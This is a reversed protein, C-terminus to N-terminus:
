ESDKKMLEAFPNNSFTKTKAAPAPAFSQRPKGGQKRRPKKPSRTQQPQRSKPKNQGDKLLSLSIRQRELEVDVVSVEVVQGVKVHESPAANRAIPMKSRHVLGDQHVGVDVFAGFDTVNTVIGPLKMGKKLDEIKEVGETFSFPVFSERPDRGPKALEEIIDQLTPLGVEENIYNNLNISKRKEEDQMLTNVDAQADEAMQLVLKYREPHVASSDLPNEAGRIRIFGAAQEFAKPGFRQVNLLEQRSKFPGKEKRHEVVNKALVPGLGSIYRLLEASATNVDVGVKNVCSVVVDDLSQRLKSQDVDHQYQGVGISKPDIKVLEALPDMFRRGISVAGRYSVDLDPFEKRAVDSASYVSAGSENVLLIPLKKDSLLSKFFTETERSATGNGIVVAAPNHKEVWAKMLDAAQKKKEESSTLFITTHELLNGQADLATAKCGTRYGPDIALVSKEGFPSALLLERLNEAFISIADGDARNRLEQRVENEMSPALLRKYCDAIAEKVQEGDDGSSKVFLKELKALALEEGPSIRVSLHIEREGRFIAHIRHSAATKIPESHDFYDRYKEADKNEESFRSSHLVGQEFFLERMDRRAKEDENIWEAIIDRAGALAEDVDAVKKDDEVDQPLERLLAEAAAKPDVGTQDFIQRALPELGKERAVTARTRRKPRFPLYIDELLAMTDAAKVKDELEATLLEREELSKLIAEKRKELERLQDVRDRIASIAVEDLMGTKEKRYRAIFPVTAGGDLLEVTATVQATKISLENAITTLIKETM